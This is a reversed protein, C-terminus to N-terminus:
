CFKRLTHLKQSNGYIGGIFQIREDEQFKHVLYKGYHNDTNGVVIFKKSSGSALYGELIMEINHEQEMRGILLFYQFPLINYEFLLDEDENNLIEAGYSILECSIAYKNELYSKIAPSDAIFYDGHRVALKEAWKLFRQVPRKYKTRKWELGDMNFIVPLDPFFRYWISSSSYGLMLIVDLNKSASDRLCNLDYIFQSFTGFLKSPDYCHVIHVNNWLRAQYFHNHSNYVFVEHGRLTLGASLYEAFQEFGGYQNPIGRTGLIGIRLKQNSYGAERMPSPAFDDIQVSSTSASKSSNMIKGAGPSCNM